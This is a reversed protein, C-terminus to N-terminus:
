IGSGEKLHARSAKPQVEGMPGESREVIMRMDARSAKPQVEGMPGESREVIMRM